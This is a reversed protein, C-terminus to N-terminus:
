ELHMIEELHALLATADGSIFELIEAAQLAPFLKYLFKHLCIKTNSFPLLLALL